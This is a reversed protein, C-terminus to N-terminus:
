IHAVRMLSLVQLAPKAVCPIHKYFGTQFLPPLPIDSPHRLPTRPTDLSHCLPPLPTAFPHGVSTTAKKWRSAAERQMAQCGCFGGAPHLFRKPRFEEDLDEDEATAEQLGFGYRHVEGAKREQAPRRRDTSYMVVREGSADVHVLHTEENGGYDENNLTVLEIAVDLAHLKIELKAEIRSEDGLYTRLDFTVGNERFQETLISCTTEIRNFDRQVLSYSVRSLVLSLLLGTIATCGFLVGDGLSSSSGSARWMGEVMAGLIM